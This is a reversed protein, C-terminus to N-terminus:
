DFVGAFFPLKVQIIIEVQDPFIQSVRSDVLEAPIDCAAQANSSKGSVSSVM